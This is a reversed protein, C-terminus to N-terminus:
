AKFVPAPEADDPLAFAEVLSAHRWSVRLHGRVSDEWTPDLPLGLLKAGNRMFETLTEDDPENLANGEDADRTALLIADITIAHLVASFCAGHWGRLAKCSTPDSRKRSPAVAAEAHSNAYLKAHLSLFCAARNTPEAM